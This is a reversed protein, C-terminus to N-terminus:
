KLALDLNQALISAEPSLGYDLALIGVEPDSDQSGASMKPRLNTSSALNLAKLSKKFGKLLKLTLQVSSKMM